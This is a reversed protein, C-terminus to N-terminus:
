LINKSMVVRRLYGIQVIAPITVRFAINGSFIMNIKSEHEQAFRIIKELFYLGVEFATPSESFANEKFAQPRNDNSASAKWIKRSNFIDVADELCQAQESCHMLVNAELSTLSKEKENIKLSRCADILIEEYIVGGGLRTLNSITHGGFRQLEAAIKKWNRSPCFSKRIAQKFEPEGASDKKASFTVLLRTELSTSIGGTKILLDALSKMEDPSCFQLFELGPDPKYKLAFM